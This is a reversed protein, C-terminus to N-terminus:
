TPGKIKCRSRRVRVRPKEEHTRPPTAVSRDPIQIKVTAVPCSKVRGIIKRNTRDALCKQMAVWSPSVLGRTMLALGNM